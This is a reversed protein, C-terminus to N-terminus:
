CFMGTGIETLRNEMVLTSRAEATMDIFIQAEDGLICRVADDVDM